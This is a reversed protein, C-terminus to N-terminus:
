KCTQSSLCQFALFLCLETALEYGVGQLRFYTVIQGFKATQQRSKATQM